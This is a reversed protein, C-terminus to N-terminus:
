FFSSFIFKLFIFSSVTDNFLKLFERIKILKQAVQHAGHLSSIGDKFAKCFFLFNLFKFTMGILTPLSSKSFDFFNKLSNFM